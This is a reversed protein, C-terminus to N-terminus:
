VRKALIERLVLSSVWKFVIIHAPPVLEPLSATDVFVNAPLSAQWRKLRDRMAVVFTRAAAPRLPSPDYLNVLIESLFQPLFYFPLSQSTVTCSM